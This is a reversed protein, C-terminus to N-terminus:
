GNNKDMLRLIDDADNSIDRLWEEKDDMLSDFPSTIDTLTKRTVHTYIQTTEPRAHGLLEQVHRLDVGQELLHTAYSHRLVHPTVKKEIGAKRKAKKLVARVSSASYPGGNQGELLYKKPQYQRKYNHMLVLAMKSLGVYRTKRGKGHRVRILLREEDIDRLQLQLLESIRLGAAYLLTIALRHKLNPTVELLQLIESRSLVTPLAKQKPPRELQSVDIHDAGVFDYFLVLASVLQRQYSISYGRKIIVDHNFQNIDSQTIAKPSKDPFYGLFLELMSCYTSISRESYRQSKLYKRFGSLQRLAQASLKEQDQQASSQQGAPTEEQNNGSPLATADIHAVGQFAREIRKRNASTHTLYWCKNTQSWWADISKAIKILEKDYPFEMAIRSAGRHHMKKLRIVKDAGM